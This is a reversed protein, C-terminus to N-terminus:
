QNQKKNILKGRELKLEYMEFDESKTVFKERIMGVDSMM